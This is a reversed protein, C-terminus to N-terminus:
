TKFENTALVMYSMKDRKEETLMRVILYTIDQVYGYPPLGVTLHCIVQPYNAKM